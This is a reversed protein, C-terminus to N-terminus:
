SKEEIRSFLKAMIVAVDNEYGKTALKELREKVWYEDYLLWGNDDFFQHLAVRDKDTAIHGTVLCYSVSPNPQIRTEKELQELLEGTVLERYAPKTFAKYRKGTGEDEGNLHQIKVGTSDLYSKCEVWLLHNDNARYAVIDIEPRPIYPNNLEVKQEPSLNVKYGITTWYGDEWLLRAIINEFADM